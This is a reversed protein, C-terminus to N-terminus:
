ETDPPSHRLTLLRRCCRMRAGDVRYHLINLTSMDRQDLEILTVRTFQTENMGGAARKQRGVRCDAFTVRFGGELVRVCAACFRVFRLAGETRGRLEM